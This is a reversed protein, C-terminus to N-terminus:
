FGHTTGFTDLMDEIAAVVHGTESELAPEMAKDRLLAALNARPPGGRRRSKPAIYVVKTTVGLRMRSWRPGIHSIESAANSEALVRVPEGVKSLADKLEGAIDKNARRLDRQLERLGRITVTGPM